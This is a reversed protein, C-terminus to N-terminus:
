DLDFLVDLVYRTKEHMLVIDGGVRLRIYDPPLISLTRELDAPLREGAIDPPLVRNKRIYNRLGPHSASKKALGPPLKKDKHRSNYYRKIRTRDSNSFVVAAKFDEGGIVAAGSNVKPGGATTTVCGAAFVSLLAWCILFTRASM